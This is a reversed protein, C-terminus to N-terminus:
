EIGITVWGADSKVSSVKPPAGAGTWLSAPLPRDFELPILDAEIVKQIATEMITPPDSPDVRDQAVVQPTGAVWRLKDGALEVHYPITVTMPPVVSQGAPKFVAKIKVLMRDREMRIVMPEVDDFEIDTVINEMGPLKSADGKLDDTESRSGGAIQLLTKELDRLYKDTTKMGKLGMRDILTNLLSEHISIRLGQDGELTENFPDITATKTEGVLYEQILQSDTTWVSQTSPLLKATELWKRVPELQRNAQALKTDVEGDFTPFLKEALRDRAVAEGAAKQREAARYAIRDALGGFLTGSLPTTAGITQNRARIYVVAHRTSFQVGDFYVEKVAYFQQQGATGIMAQPTVGTTLSQVDGNLVLAIRAKDTAPMLDASLRSVTTQRGTVQAGLIVDRIPGPDVREQAIVRNLFAESVSVRFNAPGAPRRVETTLPSPGFDSNTASAVEEGIPIPQPAPPLVRSSVMPAAYIPPPPPGFVAVPAPGYFQPGVYVPRGDFAYVPPPPYFVPQSYLGPAPGISLPPIPTAPPAIQARAETMTGLLVGFLVMGANLCRQISFPPRCALNMNADGSSIQAIWHEVIRCVEPLSSTSNEFAAASNVSFVPFERSDAFKTDGKEFPFALWLGRLGVDFNDSLVM